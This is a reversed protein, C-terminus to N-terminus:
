NQQIETVFGKLIKNVEDPRELQLWHGGVVNEVRLNPVHSRMQKPFDIAATIFNTSAILLTPHTLDYARTPIDINAILIVHFSNFYFCLNSFPLLSLCFPLM